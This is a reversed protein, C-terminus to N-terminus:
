VILFLAKFVTKMAGYEMDEAFGKINLGGVDMKIAGVDTKQGYYTNQTVNAQHRVGTVSQHFGRFQFIEVFAEGKWIGHTFHKKHTEKVTPADLVIKDSQLT